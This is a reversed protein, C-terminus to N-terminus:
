EKNMAILEDKLKKRLLTVQELRTNTDGLIEQFEVERLAEKLVVEKLRLSTIIELIEQITMKM